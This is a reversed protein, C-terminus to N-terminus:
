PVGNSRSIVSIPQGANSCGPHHVASDTGATLIYGSM